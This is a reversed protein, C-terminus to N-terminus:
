DDAPCVLRVSRGDERDDWNNINIYGDSCHIGYARGRTLGTASWYRCLTGADKISGDRYGAAPMFIAGKPEFINIWENKTIRNCIFSTDPSNANNLKFYDVNWDDPFLIIGKVGSVTAKVFKIDSDTIRKNFLYEWEQQTLTRWQKDDGNIINNNGWDSFLIYFSNKNATNTPNDGTGWGFLDIWGNYTSSINNNDCKTDDIYVNGDKANGVYDWQNEAFRWTNTSAQYQLNGKSFYVMKNPSVSFAGKCSSIVNNIVYSPANITALTDTEKVLNFEVTKEVGLEIDVRKAAPEYGYLNVLIKHNGVNLEEALYPTYGVKINDIFVEAGKPSSKVTIYGVQDSTIVIGASELNEIRKIIDEDVSPKNILTLEYGKKGQMDYPFWFETSGFDPHSIKLYTAYYSIYIWAEGVKYEVEFFTRADGQFLLERREKDSINETKVKIVSYPKDNDDYMKDLNINVFGSVEKFSGQKVELQAFVPLSLIITTFLIILKRKM